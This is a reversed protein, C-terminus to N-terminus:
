HPVFIADERDIIVGRLNHNTSLNYSADNGVSFENVFILHDKDHIDPILREYKREGNTGVNKSETVRDLEANGSFCASFGEWQDEFLIRRFYTDQPVSLGQMAQSRPLLPYVATFLQRTDPDGLRLVSDNDRALTEYNHRGASRFNKISREGNFGRGASRIIKSVTDLQEKEPIWFRATNEPAVDLLQWSIDEPMTVRAVSTCRIAVDLRKAESGEFSIARADLGSDYLISANVKDSAQLTGIRDFRWDNWALKDVRKVSAGHFVVKAQPGDYAAETEYGWGASLDSKDEYWIAMPWLGDPIRNYDKGHIDKWLFPDCLDTVRVGMASQPGAQLLVAEPMQQRFITDTTAANSFAVGGCAVIVDVELPEGTELLSYNAKFAYYSPSIKAAEPASIGKWELESRPDLGQNINPFIAEAIEPQLIEDKPDELDFVVTGISYVRDQTRQFLGHFASNQQIHEATLFRGDSLDQKFKSLQDAGAFLNAEIIQDHPKGAFAIGFSRSVEDWVARYGRNLRLNLAKAQTDTNKDYRGEEANLEYFNAFLVRERLESIAAGAPQCTKGDLIVLLPNVAEGAQSQARIEVLYYYKGEARVEQSTPWDILIPTGAYLDSVYSRLTPNCKEVKSLRKTAIAMFPDYRSRRAEAAAYPLSTNHLILSTDVWESKKTETGEPNNLEGANGVSEVAASAPLLLAQQENSAAPLTARLPTVSDSPQCSSLIASFLLLSAISFKGWLRKHM